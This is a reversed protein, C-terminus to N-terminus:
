HPFITARRSFGPVSFTFVGFDHHHELVGENLKQSVAELWVEQHHRREMIYPLEEGQVPMNQNIFKSPLFNLHM